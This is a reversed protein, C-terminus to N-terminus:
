ANGASITFQTVTVTQGVAISTNNLVLDNVVDGQLHCVPTGAGDYIRWYLATGARSAGPSSNSWTGTMAVSGNSPSAM